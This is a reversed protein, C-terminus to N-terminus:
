KWFEALVFDSYGFRKGPATFVYDDWTIFSRESVWDKWHYNVIYPCKKGFTQEQLEMASEMRTKNTFVFLVLSNPFNYHARYLKGEFLQKYGEHKQKINRRSAHTTTLPETGRDIENGLLFLELGRYKLLIPAEDPRVHGGPVKIRHPDPANLTVDPVFTQRSDEIWGADRIQPWLVVEFGPVKSAGFEISAKVLDQQLQHAFPQKSRHPHPEDAVMDGHQTRSYVAHKYPVQHRQLYPSTKDTGSGQWRALTALRKAHRIYNKKPVVLAHHVPAPLYTYLEPNLKRIGAIDDPTLRLPGTHANEGNYEFQSRHTRAMANFIPTARHAAVNGM